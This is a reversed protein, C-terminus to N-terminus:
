WAIEQGAEQYGPTQKLMPDANLTAKDIPWLVKHAETAYDLISTSADYNAAANFVLAKGNPADKMRCVDFWRKGENVFEKDRENLITLENTFFDSNKYGNVSEDWNSAYARKRVLNIYKAPDGGKMNEIEALYLLVEAYRYVPDDGCFIRLGASNVFGLNKKLITGQLRGDKYYFDLFTHDRRSDQANFAKWLGEKYENRQWGNGKLLLTDKKIM